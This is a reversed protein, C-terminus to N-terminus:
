FPRWEVRGHQDIKAVSQQRKIEVFDKKVTIVEGGRKVLDTIMQKALINIPEFRKLEM